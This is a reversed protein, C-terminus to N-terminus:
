PYRGAGGRWAGIPRLRGPGDFVFRACGPQRRLYVSTRVGQMGRSHSHAGASPKVPMVALDAQQIVSRNAENARGATDVIAIALGASKLEALTSQLTGIDAAAMKPVEGGRKKGM